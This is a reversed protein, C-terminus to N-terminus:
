TAKARKRPEVFRLQTESTALNKRAKGLERELRAVNGKQESIVSRLM